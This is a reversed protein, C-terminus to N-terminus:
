ILDHNYRQISLGPGTRIDSYVYAHSRDFCDSFAIDIRAVISIQSDNIRAMEDETFPRNLWVTLGHGHRPAFERMPMVQVGPKISHAAPFGEVTEVRCRWSCNVAATAGVNEFSYQVGQRGNELVLGDFQQLSIYARLEAMSARTALDISSRTQKLSTRTFWLSAGLGALTLWGLAIQWRSLAVMERASRDMSEQARLDAIERQRSDLRQIDAHRFAEGRDNLFESELKREEKIASCSALAASALLACIWPRM